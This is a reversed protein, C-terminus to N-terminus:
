QPPKCRQSPQPQRVTEEGVKTDLHEASSAGLGHEGRVASPTQEFTLVSVGLKCQGTHARAELQSSSIIYSPRLLIDDECKLDYVNSRQNLFIKFSLLINLRPWM